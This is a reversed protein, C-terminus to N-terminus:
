RDPLDFGADLLAARAKLGTITRLYQLGAASDAQEHTPICAVFRDPPKSALELADSCARDTALTRADAPTATIFLDLAEEQEVKELLQDDTGFVYTANPEIQPLITRLAEPAAVTPKAAPGGTTPKADDDGTSLFSSSGALFAIVIVILGIGRLGAGTKEPGIGGTRWASQTPKFPDRAM